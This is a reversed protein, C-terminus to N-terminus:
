FLIPDDDPYVPLGVSRRYHDLSRRFEIEHLRRRRRAAVIRNLLQLATCKIRSALRGATRIIPPMFSILETVSAKGRTTTEARERSSATLMRVVAYSNSPPDFITKYAHFLRAPNIGEV